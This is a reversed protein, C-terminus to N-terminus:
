ITYNDEIRYVPKRNAFRGQSLYWLGQCAADVDDDHTTDDPFAVMTEIFDHAWYAGQPMWWLGSRFIPTTSEARARKDADPVPRIAVVPIRHGSARLSQILSQGSAKDEILILNPREALYLDIATKLLVPYEVRDKWRSIGFYGQKNMGLTICVSYDPDTTEGTKKRIPVKFATDWSQIKLQWGNPGFLDPKYTRLFWERRFVDGARPRIKWNGHLLRMMEVHPLALLNARYQPDKRTLAPNDDLKAFIFTLSRPQSDPYKEELEQKTDAWVLVNNRRIFWRLVGSREPIPYGTEPDIWWSILGTGWEGTPGTVLWSDPDPNCTARIYPRVGCTSRNRSTLYWFQAETFHTLEDFCILTIQSGQYGYVHKEYELHSFKIANGHPPFTWKLDTRNPVGGILPYLQFSEDWLGGPNTIQGTIRRFIIASFGPVTTVYRLPDLLEAYSKGSGAAGGYVAFDAETSLFLEQPGPQPRITIQEQQEAAKAAPIM